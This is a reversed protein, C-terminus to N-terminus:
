FLETIKNLRRMKPQCSPDTPLPGQQVPKTVQIPDGPSFYLFLQSGLTTRQGGGALQPRRLKGGGEDYVGM